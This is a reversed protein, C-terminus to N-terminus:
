FSDKHVWWRGRYKMSNSFISKNILEMAQHRSINLQKQIEPISLYEELKSDEELPVKQSHISNNKIPSYTDTAIEDQIDRLDDKHIWWKRQHKIARPLRGENLFMKITSGSKYGLIKAAEIVDVHDEINTKEEYKEIDELPIRWKSLSDKFANP